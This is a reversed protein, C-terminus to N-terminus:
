KADCILDVQGSWVSYDSDKESTIAVSNITVAYPMKEMLSLTRYVDGWKGGLVVGARVKQKEGADTTTDKKINETKLSEVEVSAGTYEGLSEVTELFVAPDKLPVFYKNLEEIDTRSEELLKTTDQKNIAVQDMTNLEAKIKNLELHMSNIHKYILVYASLVAGFVLFAIIMIKQTTTIKKM